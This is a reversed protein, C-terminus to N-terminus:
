AGEEKLEKPGLVVGRVKYKGDGGEEVYTLYGRIANLHVVSTNELSFLKKARRMMKKDHRIRNLFKGRLIL